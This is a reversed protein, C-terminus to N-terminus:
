AIGYTYPATSISQVGLEVGQQDKISM